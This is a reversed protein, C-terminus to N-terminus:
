GGMTPLLKRSYFVMPAKVRQSKAFEVGTIRLPFGGGSELSRLRGMELLGPRGIHHSNQKVPHSDPHHTRLATHTLLLHAM